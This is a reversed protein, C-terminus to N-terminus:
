AEMMKPLANLFARALALQRAKVKEWSATEGALVRRQWRELVFENLLILIWRLAFLPLYAQLRATFLPDDGYLRAAASRFRARRQPPLPWGPHLLIDAVLKVPDDWGFYEFDVFALSGDSRRLSNHFGFDAPVLTRWEQPLDAAFDLGAGRAAVSADVIRRTLQPEVSGRIFEILEQEDHLHGLLSLRARIQREIEAGSLCAEAAMPQDAAGPADRMDHVRKLFAAAADVDADTVEAVQSGEIWSMLAYGQGRDVGVVRPVDDVACREMLRLAMVETSLRDRPDDQLSPYQKLALLRGGFRVRYIRSNRGGSAIRCVEALEGVLACAVGRAADLTADGIATDGAV